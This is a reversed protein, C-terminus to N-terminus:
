ANFAYKAAKLLDFLCPCNKRYLYKKTECEEKFFEIVMNKNIKGDQVLRWFNAAINVMNNGNSTCVSIIDDLAQFIKNQEEVFVNTNIVEVHVSQLDLQKAFTAIAEHIQEENIQSPVGIVLLNM